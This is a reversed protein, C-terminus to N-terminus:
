NQKKKPTLFPGCQGKIRELTSDLVKEKTVRVPAGFEDAPVVAGQLKNFLAGIRTRRCRELDRVHERRKQLEKQHHPPIVYTQPNVIENPAEM